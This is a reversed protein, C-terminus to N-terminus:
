AADPPWLSLAGVECDKFLREQREIEIGKAVVKLLDIELQALYGLSSYGIGFDDIAMATRADRFQRM